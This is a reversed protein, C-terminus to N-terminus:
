GPLEPQAPSPLWDIKQVDRVSVAAKDAQLLSFLNGDPDRAYVETIGNDEKAENLTAVGINTLRACEAELDGVELAFKNYGIASFPMPDGACPTEPVIFQWLELVMNGTNFWAARLRVNDLGTVQDFRPGVVKNVYGYPEIGLVNRYFAVSADIDHCVLALHALWIPGKFRPEDLQEVEFMINDADCAYAYTVGRGNLDIPPEGVSVPSAGLGKFTKYLSREAPSQYCVHTPGPGIVTMASSLSQDAFQMLELYGNPGKLVASKEPEQPLQGSIRKEPLVELTTAKTYFGVAADLDRVSLGVHHIGVVTSPTLQNQAPESSQEKMLKDIRRIRCAIPFANGSQEKRKKL